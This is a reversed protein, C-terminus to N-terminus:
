NVQGKLEAILDRLRAAELFDEQAVAEKLLRSYYEIETNIDRDEVEKIASDSTSIKGKNFMLPRKGIHKDSGQIKRINTAILPGFVDYCESCGFSSNAIFEGYTMKCKPCQVSKAPDAETAGKFINQGGLIGSLLKGFQDNDFITSYYSIDTNAACESCLHHENKVGNVVETYHFTAQNKECKECLM